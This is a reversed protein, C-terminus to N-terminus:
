GVTNFAPGYPYGTINDNGDETIVLIDHERYGGAGPQGEPITLMPEMSIVMGPELVTDIDERLELGAERGYYHSLVGFSHGYGFTRYQLLDREAFFANIAETVAACSAGPKLLSMGYEHAAVNAEWIKLSADDVEGVFLTRELATYYGSIMPFTNLSLIDGRHLTRSTVPNHAGDTNIGSQFWVWTDRYEADPFRKAIELEMADRGAMAVDIERVGEAIAERIAYGGVDAVQAGHRILAIEAPSKAMRQRMTAPAIDVTTAPKLFADLLGRQALTMHDDELGIAGGKGTVSAIARWYNNRQWDTYTINDGHSRRWPQGADIGASITVSDTAAVVLGYPRGFSCYLFGSYYAINHMSTFVCADVGMDAMTARLGSLRADYEAPAFPLVRDGQHFRYFEPRHM